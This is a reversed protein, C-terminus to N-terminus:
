IDISDQLEWWSTNTKDNLFTRISSAQWKRAGFVFPVQENPYCKALFSQSNIVIYWYGTETEYLINGDDKIGCYTAGLEQEITKRIDKINM